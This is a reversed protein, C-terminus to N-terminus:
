VKRKIAAEVLSLAPLIYYSVSGVQFLIAIFSAAGCRSGREGVVSVIFFCQLAPILAFAGLWLSTPKFKNGASRPCLTLGMLRLHSHILKM